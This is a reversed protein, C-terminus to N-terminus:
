RKMQVWMCVVNDGRSKHVFGVPTVASSALHVSFMASPGSHKVSLTGLINLCDLILMMSFGPLCEIIGFLLTGVTM